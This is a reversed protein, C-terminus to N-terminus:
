RVRQRKSSAKKRTVAVEPRMTDAWTETSRPPRLYMERLSGGKTTADDIIESQTRSLFYNVYFNEADANLLEAPNVVEDNNKFM